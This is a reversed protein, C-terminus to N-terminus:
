AGRRWPCGPACPPRRPWRRRGRPRARGAAGGRGRLSRAAPWCPARTCTHHPHPTPTPCDTCGTSQGPLAAGCRCASKWLGRAERPRSRGAPRHLHLHLGVAAPGGHRCHRKRRGLAAADGVAQRRRLPQGSLPVAHKQLLRSTGAGAWRRGCSPGACRSLSSRRGKGAQRGAQARCTGPAAAPLPGGSAAPGQMRATALRCASRPCCASLHQRSCM